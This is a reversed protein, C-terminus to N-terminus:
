ERNSKKCNIKINNNRITFEVYLTLEDSVFVRAQYKNPIPECNEPYYKEILKRSAAIHEGICVALGWRDMGCRDLCGQAEDYLLLRPPKKECFRRIVNQLPLPAERDPKPDM